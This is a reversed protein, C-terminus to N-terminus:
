LAKVAEQAASDLDSATTIKLGSEQLLKMGTEVNTGELRVVLPLSLNVQKAAAIIGSAIVDCRVIGGFINVLIAKVSPDSSLIKFAETVTTESAGGGVDLFNAPRGGYLQVIDMTAMALGAGNVLCGINGDLGIYNLDFKAATVEREDEQSFDRMEFIEKQRFSASDDFNLKADASLVGQPCEALPNIEVQTSDTQMFLNYLREMQVKADEINEEKFELKRAIRELQEQTPGTKLNVAETIIADPDEEAVAEIDVGGKPSAVIVPGMHKRDLLIAFYKETLIDASEGVFLTSCLQGESTTQKTVLNHGLMNKAIEQVEEPKTAFKVGGEYGNSFTGKGRGGAHIQAKVVIEPLEDKLKDAIAFAEEPTKAAEGRQTRIDFKRLLEKGQYEHVNLCRVQSSVATGVFAATNKAVQSGIAPFSRLASLM